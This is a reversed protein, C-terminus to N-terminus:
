VNKYHELLAQVIQENPLEPATDKGGISNHVADAFTKDISALRLSKSLPGDVGNCATVESALAAAFRQRRFGTFEPGSSQIKSKLEADEIKEVNIGHIAIMGADPHKLLLVTQGTDDQSNFVDAGNAVALPLLLNKAAKMLQGSMEDWKKIDAPIQKITPNNSKFADRESQFRSRAEKAAYNCAEILLVWKATSEIDAIRALDPNILRLNEVMNYFATQDM